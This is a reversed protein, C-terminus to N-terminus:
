PNDSHYKLITLPGSLGVPILPKDKGLYLDMPTTTWGNKFEGYQAFDGIIRNRFVTKLTVELTNEKRLLQKVPLKTGSLWVTGLLKGNLTLEATTAFEGLDLEFSDKQNVFKEPLNFKISYKVEGAFYKIDPNEFSTLPKLTHVTVPEIKREYAPNFVLTAQLDTIPYKEVDTKVPKRTTSQHDFVVIISERPKLTMSFGISGNSFQYNEPTSVAGNLPNLVHPTKNGVGFKFESTFTTDRQNFLFYIDTDGQKKRIYMLQLSDTSEIALDPTLKLYNIAESITMNSMVKGKGYVNVSSTGWLSDALLNFNDKENLTAQLSLQSSPKPGLVVAGQEVLSAILKLTQYEMATENPLVLLPYELGNDMVIKQNEVRAKNQLIDFNCAIARYGFPVSHLMNYDVYQPLKDGVYYLISSAILGQQLVSQIRAQYNLWSSTQEWYPNNRNFHSSFIGLTLGPKKEVPQHVYSHLIMQNIGSCFAKDGFLKIDAPSESYSAMGTYAESGVISKGYFTAAAAPLVEFPYSPKYYSLGDKDIDWWFEFMPMDAHRNIKLVDVPPYNSEGYIAEAHMELGNRHCLKSFHGYYNEDILEGITKRFDYLFAETQEVNGVIEGCLAPIWQNISYGRNKEFSAPLDATWNQYLAEWSDVLLFKFTNGSYKGAHEVLKKAFSNFHLNLASTDMKDCELGTGEPTAPANKVGTTTYGFRLVCWNGKPAKWVLTGDASMKAKLEIIEYPQVVRGTSSTNKTDFAHRNEARVTVTKALLHPTSSQFAPLDNADLLQVECLNYNNLNAGNFSVLELKFYKAKVEPFNITTPQNVGTVDFKKIETFQTGDISSSLIYSVKLGRIDNWTFTIRPFIVIKSTKVSKPYEFLLKDNVRMVLSSVPSGDYLDSGLLKDNLKCAPQIKSFNEPKDDTPYALVTVDRYFNNRSVPQPLKLRLKKGGKLYTKSCVFDKMSNEPSIWPGGSTSWGDCNHVGITIGLRAAEQLSWAFLDYWEPSNFSVRKVGIEKNKLYGINLITAQVIGQKAMSELDKTIGEKTINGDMWHWWTHVKTTQTPNRFTEPSIVAQAHQALAAVISFITMLFFLPIRKM